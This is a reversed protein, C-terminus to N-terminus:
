EGLDMEQSNPADPYFSNMKFTLQTKYPTTQSLKPPSKNVQKKNDISDLTRKPSEGMVQSNEELIPTDKM